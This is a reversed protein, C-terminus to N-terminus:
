SHRISRAALGNAEFEGIINRDLRDAVVRMTPWDTGRTSRGAFAVPSSSRHAHRGRARCAAHGRPAGARHRRRHRGTRRCWGSRPRHLGRHAINGTEDGHHLDAIEDADDGLALLIRDLRRRLELHLQFGVGSAARDRRYRSRAARWDRSAACASPCPRRRHRWRPQRLASAACKRRARGSARARDARGARDRIILVVADPDPRARLIRM